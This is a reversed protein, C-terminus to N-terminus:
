LMVTYICVPDAMIGLTDHRFYVFVSWNLDRKSDVLYCPSPNHWVARLYWM